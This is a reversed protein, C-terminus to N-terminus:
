WNVWTSCTTQATCPNSSNPYTCSASAQCTFSGCDYWQYQHYVPISCGQGPSLPPCTVPQGCVTVQCASFCATGTNTICCTYTSWQGCYGSGPGTVCIAAKPLSGQYAFNVCTLAECPTLTFTEASSKPVDCSVYTCNQTHSRGYQDTWCDQNNGNKWHQCGDGATWRDVGDGGKCHQYGDNDNWCQQSSANLCHNTHTGATQVCNTPQTISVTYTGPNLGYFCYDGNGDTRNTEIAVGQANKLTVLVNSIGSELGPTLFGYGACDQFVTGCVSAESQGVYIMQTCSNSNGCEDVATWTRAIVYNGLCQGATISDTYTLSPTSTCKDVVMAYGTLAPSVNTIAPPILHGQCWASPVGCEFSQNLNSCLVTLNTITCGPFPIGGGGLATNCVGFIQRVSQGNLACTPDNLVLNGCAGNFGPISKTDGFNLNLELCLTQGAFNGAECNTPNTHNAKLCGPVGGCNVFKQLNSCTSFTLCYGSTNTIGCKVIGNTYVRKFCNTLISAANSGNCGSGYDGPGFTCYGPITNSITIDPPCTVIPPTTDVTWTYVVVDNSSINGCEDTVNITFKRSVVCANTTDVHTVNTSRVTCNDTAVVLAQMGADTPLILPNCGLNTSAPAWVIVPATTDVTWTYTNTQTASVNGCEDVVTVKFTRTMGCPTGSDQTLINTAALTCNDWARILAALNAAVPLTVPNCGLNSNIVGSTIVPANTDIQWSYVVTQPLSTNGCDDTATITFTRTTGCATNTDVHSVNTSLVGCNDQAIVQAAISGDTPLLTVAPNCGLNVNTLVSVIVPANTDVTWSITQTCTALNGYGDSATYTLFRLSSCGATSDSESCTITVPRGCCSEAAVNTANVSNQSSPITALSPNCGLYIDPPCKTFTVPCNTIEVLLFQVPNTLEVDDEEQMIYVAGLVDGCQPIWSAANNSAANLLGEVYSISFPPYPPSPPPPGGVLDNIAVQIDWFYANGKHNLLYNVEQWVQPSVYSSASHGSPLESNLNTDCTPYLLGVYPTGPLAQSATIFTDADVCWALYTGLQIPQNTDTVYVSYLAPSDPYNAYAEISSTLVNGAPGNFSIPCDTQGAAPYRGLLIVVLAAAWYAMKVNFTMRNM